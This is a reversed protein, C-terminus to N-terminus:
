MIYPLCAMDFTKCSKKCNKCSHLICGGLCDPLLKCEKCKENKFCNSANEYWNTTNNTDLLPEGDATIYGFCAKKYSLDNICKWMSMDPMLYFFKTDACGECSQYHYTNTVIKYGLEIAIDYFQKLESVNNINNEKYESTKYVARILLNIHKRYKKEFRLLTEKFKLLDCNSLNIRLNFTFDKRRGTIDILMKIKSILLDFTPNGNKYIRLSDHTNKDSDLTIQLSFLNHELLENVVNETLLSGNTVISTIYKYNNKISDKEVWDLFKKIEKYFLLPEGGFLSFQIAKFDKFHKKGYKKLIEFYKKVNEKSCDHGKEFCYPCKFNCSLSPVLVINLFNNDFYTKKFMYELEQLENRNDDIVFGNTILVNKEEDSLSEFLDFNDFVDINSDGDLIISSKTFSNYILIENNYKKIINYKSLKYM